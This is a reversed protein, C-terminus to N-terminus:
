EVPIIVWREGLILSAEGLVNYYRIIEQSQLYENALSVVSTDEELYLTAFKVVDIMDQKEPTIVIVRGVWLASGEYFVNSAEIVEETTNYLSAIFVLSEGSSVEHLLFENNPGFREFLAPGPSPELKPESSSATETATSEPTDTEGTQGEEETEIKIDDDSPSAQVVETEVPTVLAMGRSSRFFFQYYGASLILGTGVLIWFFRLWKQSFQATKEGRLDVPLHKLTDESYVPCSQYVERLCVNDQHFSNVEASQKVKYCHNARNPYNYSVASDHKLGLHPCSEEQLEVATKLTKAKTM